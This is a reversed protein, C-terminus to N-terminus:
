FYPLRMLQNYIDIVQLFLVHIRLNLIWLIMLYKKIESVSQYATTKTADAFPYEFNYLTKVVDNMKSSLKQTDDKQEDKEEIDSQVAFKLYYIKDQEELALTM